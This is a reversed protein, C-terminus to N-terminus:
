KFIFCFQTTKSSQFGFCRFMLIRNNVSRNYSTYRLYTRLFVIMKRYKGTSTSTVFPEKRSKLSIAKLKSPITKSKDSDKFTVTLLLWFENSLGNFNFLLSFFYINSRNTKMVKPYLPLYMKHIWTANVKSIKDKSNM